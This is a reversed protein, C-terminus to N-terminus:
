SYSSNLFLRLLEWMELHIYKQITHTIKLRKKTDWLNQLIRTIKNTKVNIAEFLYV